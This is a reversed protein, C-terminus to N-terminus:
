ASRRKRFHSHRNLVRAVLQTGPRGTGGIFPLPAPERLGPNATRGPVAETDLGTTM